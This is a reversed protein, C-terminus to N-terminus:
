KTGNGQLSNQPKGFVDNGEPKSNICATREVQGSKVVEQTTLFHRRIRQRREMLKYHIEELCFWSRQFVNKKM